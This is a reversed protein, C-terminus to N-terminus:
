KDNNVYIHTHWIEPISFKGKKRTMYFWKRDPFANTVMQEIANQNMEGDLSWLCYHSINRLNKLVNTHPFENKLIAKRKGQMKSTINKLIQSRDLSKEYNQYTEQDKQLRLFSVDCDTLYDRLKKLEEWTNPPQPMKHM